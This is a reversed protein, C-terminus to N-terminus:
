SLLRYVTASVAISTFPNGLHYDFAFLTAPSSNPTIDSQHHLFYAFQRYNDRTLTRVDLIYIYINKEMQTVILRDRAPKIM